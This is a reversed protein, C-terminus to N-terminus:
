LFMDELSELSYKSSSSKKRRKTTRPKEPHNCDKATHDDQGCRSCLRRQHKGGARKKTTKKPDAKHPKHRSGAQSDKGMRQLKIQKSAVRRQQYKETMKRTTDRAQKRKRVARKQNRVTSTEIGLEDLVKTAAEDDDYMAAAFNLTAVFAGKQGM